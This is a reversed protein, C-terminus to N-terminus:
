NNLIPELISTVIKLSIEFSTSRPVENFAYPFLVHFLFLTINTWALM